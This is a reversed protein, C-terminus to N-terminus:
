RGVHEEVLERSEGCIVTDDPFMMIWMSEQSVEDILRDMVVAVFLLEFTIRPATGGEVLAVCM